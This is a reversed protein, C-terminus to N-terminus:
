NQFCFNNFLIRVPQTLSTAVGGTLTSAVLHTNVNDEFVSGLYTLLLYKFQDYM